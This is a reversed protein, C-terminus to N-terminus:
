RRGSPPQNGSSRSVISSAMSAYVFAGAQAENSSSTLPVIAGPLSASMATNSVSRTSTPRLLGAPSSSARTSYVM